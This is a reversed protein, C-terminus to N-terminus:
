LLIKSYMKSKSALSIGLANEAQGLALIIAIGLTFGYIVSKPIFIIYRDLRFFFASSHVSGFSTRSTSSTVDRVAGCIWVAIGFARWYSRRYQLSKWFSLCFVRGFPPLSEKQAPTAGSAIALAVSLPINVLAVTIGSKWNRLVSNIIQNKM